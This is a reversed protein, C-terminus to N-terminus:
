SSSSSTGTEWVKNWTEGNEIKRRIQMQVPGQLMLRRQKGSGPVLNPRSREQCIACLLAMKALELREQMIQRQRLRMRQTASPQIRRLRRSANYSATAAGQNEKYRSSQAHKGGSGAKLTIDSSRLRIMSRHTSIYSSVGTSIVKYGPRLAPICAAVIGVFVEMARWYWNDVSVWTVDGNINQWNLVTRVVCCAATSLLTLRTYQGPHEYVQLYGQHFAPQRESVHSGFGDSRM